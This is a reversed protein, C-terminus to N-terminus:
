VQPAQPSFFQHAKAILFPLLAVIALGFLTGFGYQVLANDDSLARPLRTMALMLVFSVGTLAAALLAQVLIPGPLHVEEHGRLYRGLLWGTSLGIFWYPADHGIHTPYFAIYFGQLVILVLLIQPLSAAALRTRSAAHREVGIYAMLCFVGFVFGSLVDGLDHVGLYLRSFGQLVIFIAAAAYAWNQRMTHALYGWLVVAIQTHGSPWGYSDGVRGDLAYLMDPRPDQGFDKLWSNLLGAAMLLMATHFFRKSGLAFYGFCLFMILFLPYGALTILEFFGNLFPTRLPLVWDMINWLSM